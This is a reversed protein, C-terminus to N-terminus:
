HLICLLYQDCASTNDLNSLKVMILGQADGNKVSLAGLINKKKVIQWNEENIIFLWHNTM